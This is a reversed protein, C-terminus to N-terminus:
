QVRGQGGAQADAETATTLPSASLLMPFGNVKDTAEFIIGDVLTPFKGRDDEQPTIALDFSVTLNKITTPMWNLTWILKGSGADFRLDGADVSSLGTWRVNPPLKASLKLDNLEHLDNEIVASVRYTTAEGVKPPLPGSGVPIGDDNFYHAEATLETNSVTKATVTATKTMRDSKEGDITAISAEVYANVIIEGTAGSPAKDIFPVSFDLTGEDNPDIKGLSPIQKKTWTIRNGNRVGGAKDVLENWELLGTAPTTEFVATLTVDGLVATGTNKYSIAYRLTDGFRMPQSDTKGNLVLQTVLDGKLVDTTFEAVKQVQLVGDGNIFGIMASANLEGAADSAFSGEIKVEGEGKADLKAIDWTRLEPDAATPTAKEPIFGAPYEARLRLNEFNSESDNKYKMTLTVKDGPLVKAPGEVSVNIVSDTISLARTAVKQFEANFDAPRYTLIAQLDLVKNMPALLVGKVTVIGDKGPAVSGIKWGGTESEMSPETSQVKFEPPLRFELQATGLAVDENNKYRVAYTVLEGSKVESPGEINVAVGEGGFGVTRGPSFFLVGAWSVAALVAFFVTMGVLVKKITSHRVQVLRTMDLNSEGTERYINQLDSALAQEHEQAQEATLPTRRDDPM